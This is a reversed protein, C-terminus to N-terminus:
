GTRDLFVVIVPPYATHDLLATDDTENRRRRFELTQLQHLRASAFMVGSFCIAGTVKVVQEVRFGVRASRGRGRWTLGGGKRGGGGKGGM